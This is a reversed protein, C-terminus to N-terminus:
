LFTGIVGGYLRRQGEMVGGHLRKEFGNWNCILM